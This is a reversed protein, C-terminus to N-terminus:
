SARQARRAIIKQRRTEPFEVQIKSGPFSFGIKLDRAQEPVLQSLQLKLTKLKPLNCIALYFDSIDREDLFNKVLGSFVIEVHEINKYNYLYVSDSFHDTEIIASTVYPELYEHEGLSLPQKLCSLDFRIKDNCDILAELSRDDPIKTLRVSDICQALQELEEEM